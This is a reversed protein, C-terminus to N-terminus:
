EHKEIKNKGPYRKRSLLKPLYMLLMSLPCILFGIFGLYANGPFVAVLGFVVVIPLFCCLVM